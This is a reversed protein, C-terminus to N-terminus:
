FLQGLGTLVAKVYHPPYPIFDNAQGFNKMFEAYPLYKVASVEEPPLNLKTVDLNAKVFYLYLFEHATHGYEITGCTLVASEKIEGFTWPIGLEEQFERKAAQLPTEGASVHGAVSIDWKNPFSKKQPARLQLLVEHRDNVIWVHVSKHWLDQEHVARKTAQGMRNMKEDYYDLLEEM